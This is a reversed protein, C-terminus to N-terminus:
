LGIQLCIAQDFLSVFRDHIWSDHKHIDTNHSLDISYSLPQEYSLLYLYMNLFTKQIYIRKRIVLIYNPVHITQVVEYVINQTIGREHM